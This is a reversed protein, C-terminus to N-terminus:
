QKYPPPLIVKDGLEQLYDPDIYGIFGASPTFTMEGFYLRDGVIYWDVRVFPFDRSLIHSCELMRELAQPRAFVKDGRLAAPVLDFRPTWDPKYLTFRTAHGIRDHCVVICCPEGSCCHVKYDLISVSDSHDDLYEEAIVCPKIPRYHLEATRIGYTKRMWHKLKGVAKKRQAETLATKDRVLIVSGSGNNTKLVFSEPLKDFDIQEPDHWVGYLRPLTDGLGCKEVYERVRYKDALLSWSSTDSYFKLWNIKANLTLPHDFDLIGGGSTKRFLIKALKKPATYGLVTYYQSKLRDYIKEVFKRMKDTMM